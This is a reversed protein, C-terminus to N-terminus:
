QIETHRSLLGMQRMLLLANMKRTVGDRLLYDFHIRDGEIEIEFCKNSIRDPYKQGLSTLALDHTAIIGTAGMGLLQEMIAMSGKQKDASNTGKLIEDLIVFVPSGGAIADVLQKLRRLEAYFYSEHRALSDSTRMSSYVEMPRFRFQSACVPAGAMALVMAVGVTRLFTSKGAMNAGTIIMFRGEGDISFDNCVREGAPILPHGADRALIVQHDQVPTPFVFAPNNFTYVALSVGADVSAVSEFWVPLHGRHKKSWRELLLVCNLDWLFLGNLLLAAIVNLRNDFASSVSALREILESPYAGDAKLRKRIDSLLGSTFETEEIIKLLKGYKKMTELRRGVMAHVDNIRKLLSGTIVLQIIFLAVFLSFPLMGAIVALLIGLTAVPLARSLFVLPRNESFRGPISAWNLISIRDASQERFLNGTAIYHQCLENNLSLERYAEQKEVTGHGNEGGLLMSALKERGSGTSCRNLYQFLSGPGFIDLDTAYRHDPDSFESGDDFSSFNGRLAELERTNIDILSGTYRGREDLQASLKVLFLFGALFLLFVLAFLLLNQGAFAFPVLVTLSFMALRAIVMLRQRKQIERLRTSYGTYKETYFSLVETM